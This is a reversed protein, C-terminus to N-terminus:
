KHVTVNFVSSFNSIFFDEEIQGLSIYETEIIDTENFEGGQILRIFHKEDYVSNPFLSLFREKDNIRIKMNVDTLFDGYISISKIEETNLINEIVVETTNQNTTM